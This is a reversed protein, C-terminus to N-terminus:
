KKAWTHRFGESIKIEFNSNWAFNRGRSVCGSRILFVFLLQKNNMLQKAKPVNDSNVFLALTNNKNYLDLEKLKKKLASKENETKTLEVMRDFCLLASEAPTLTFEGEFTKKTSATNQNACAVFLPLSFLIILHKLYQKRVFRIM